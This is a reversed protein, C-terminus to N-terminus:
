NAVFFGIAARVTGRAPDDTEVLEAGMVENSLAMADLAVLKAMHGIIKEQQDLLALETEVGTIMQRLYERKTLTGDLAIPSENMSHSQIAMTLAEIATFNAAFEQAYRSEPAMTAEVLSLDVAPLAAEFRTRAAQQQDILQQRAPTMTAEEMALEAMIDDLVAMKTELQQRQLGNRALALEIYASKEALFQHRMETRVDGDAQGIATQLDSLTLTKYEVEVGIDRMAQGLDSQEFDYDLTKQLYTPPLKVLRESSEPHWAPGGEAIATGPAAVLLAAAFVAAVFAGTTGSFITHHQHQVTM